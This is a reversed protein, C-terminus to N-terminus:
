AEQATHDTHQHAWRCSGDPDLPAACPAGTLALPASCRPIAPRPSAAPRASRATIRHAALRSRVTGLPVGFMDAIEPATMTAALQALTAPRLRQWSQRGDIVAM